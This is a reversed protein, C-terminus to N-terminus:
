PKPLAKLTQLVELASARDGHTKSVKAYRVMGQRDIVFTSPYATEGPADWRLGYRLTFAFDPDIVLSFHPPLNKGGLFEHAHERLRDAPGPYVLIVRARAAQLSEAHALFQGVQRTCIPCQYGPWGRLVVLVVPGETLHQSLKGPQGDLATWTADPAKDGVQPPAPAPAKNAAGGAAPQPATAPPAAPPAAWATLGLAALGLAALGLCAPRSAPRLISVGRPVSIM